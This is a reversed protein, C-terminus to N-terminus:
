SAIAATSGKRLDPEGLRARDAARRGSQWGAADVASRRRSSTLTGFLRDVEQDVLQQRDALVPLVDVGSSTSVHDAVEASVEALREDIRYAYATLFSSRFGRSRQHDGARAGAAEALVAQQGQLLLSTFMLEVVSLDRSAGIVTSMAYDSHRVTRCRTHRAVVHLLLSKSDRYPDDIPIRIATVWGAAVARGEVMASDIAHRTMLEHAKATFAEAEAPFSTSEAKALLARVRELVPDHADHDRDEAGHGGLQIDVDDPGGGPPPILRPLPDLHSLVTTLEDVASLLTRLNMEIHPGTTHWLMEALWGRRGARQPLELSQIQQQWRPHLTDPRRRAHDIAVLHRLLESTAPRKALRRVVRVLEVPQWGTAWVRDLLRHMTVELELWVAASREHRGGDARRQRNNTGM